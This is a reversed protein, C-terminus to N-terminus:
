VKWHCPGGIDFSAGCYQNIRKEQMKLNLRLNWTDRTRLTSYATTCKPRVAANQMSLARESKLMVKPVLKPCYLCKMFGERRGGSAPLSRTVSQSYLLPLFTNRHFNWWNLNLTWKRCLFEPQSIICQMPPLTPRKANKSARFLLASHFCCCRLPPWLLASTKHM